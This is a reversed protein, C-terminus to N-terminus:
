KLRECGDLDGSFTGGPRRTRDPAIRRSRATKWVLLGLSTLSNTIAEILDTERLPKVLLHFIRAENVAKLADKFGLHPTLLLRKTRPAVQRVRRLFEAGNMGPLHMESVVIADATASARWDMTAAQCM